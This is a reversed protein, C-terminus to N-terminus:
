RPLTVVRDEGYQAVEAEPDALEDGEVEVIQAVAPGRQVQGCVLLLPGRGGAVSARPLSVVWRQRGGERAPPFVRGRQEGGPRRAPDRRRADAPHRFGDGSDAEGDSRCDSCLRTDGCREGMERDCLHRPGATM